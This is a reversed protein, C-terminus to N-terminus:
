PNLLKHCFYRYNAAAGHAEGRGIVEQPLPMPDAQKLCVRLQASHTCGEQEIADLDLGLEAEARDLKSELHSLQEERRGLGEAIPEMSEMPSALGHIVVAVPGRAPGLWRYHTVGQSLRAFDGEAGHREDIGIVTKRREMSFPWIAIVALTLGAISLMYWM